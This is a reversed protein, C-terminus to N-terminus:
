SVGKKLLHGVAGKVMTPYSENSIYFGTGAQLAERQILHKHMHDVNDWEEYLRQCLSEWCTDSIIPNDLQHYAYSAMLYWPVLMHVSNATIKLCFDDFM